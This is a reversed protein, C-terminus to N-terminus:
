CEKLVEYMNNDNRDAKKKADSEVNRRLEDLYYGIPHKFGSEDQASSKLFQYNYKFTQAFALKLNWGFTEESTWGFTEESIKHDKAILPVIDTWFFIQDDRNWTIGTKEKLFSDIVESNMDHLNCFLSVYYLMWVIIAFHVHIDNVDKPQSYYPRLDKLFGIISNTPKLGTLFEPTPDTM